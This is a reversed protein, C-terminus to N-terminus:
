EAATALAIQQAVSLPPAVTKQIPPTRTGTCVVVHAACYAKGRARPKGCWPDPAGPQWSDAIGYACGREPIPPWPHHKPVFIRQVNGRIISGNTGNTHGLDEHRLARRVWWDSKGVKRATRHLDQTQDFIERAQQELAVNSRVKKPNRPTLKLYSVAACVASENPYALERMIHNVSHGNNWM